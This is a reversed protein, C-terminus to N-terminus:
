FEGVKLKKPVQLIYGSFAMKHVVVLQLVAHTFIESAQALLKVRGAYLTQWLSSFHTSFIFLFQPFFLRIKTFSVSM